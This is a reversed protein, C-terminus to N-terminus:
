YKGSGDEDSWNSEESDESSSDGGGEDPDSPAYVIDEEDSDDDDSQGAQRDFVFRRLTSVVPALISGSPVVTITTLCFATPM